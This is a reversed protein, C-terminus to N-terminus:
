LCGGESGWDELIDEVMGYEVWDEMHSGCSPSSSFYAGCTLVSNRSAGM